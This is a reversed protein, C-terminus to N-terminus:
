GDNTRMEAPTPLSKRLKTLAYRLRSKVTERNVGTVTGIDELSLDCEEKLLFAERQEAPLENLATKIAAGVESQTVASVPDHTTAVATEVADDEAVILADSRGTKRYQDIVCNRAIRYLWTSFKASPRYGSRASIVKAWITQFADEATQQNGLQRLLFRFLPARHRGYLTEFAGMDGDRYRLMLATDSLEVAMKLLM